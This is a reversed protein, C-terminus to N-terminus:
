QKPWWDMPNQKLLRLQSMRCNSIWRWLSLALPDHGERFHEGWAGLVELHPLFPRLLHSPSLDRSTPSSGPEPPPGWIIVFTRLPSLLHCDTNPPPSLLPHLCLSSPRLQCNQLHLFPWWGLFAATETAPFALFCDRQLSVKLVVCSYVETALYGIGKHHYVVVVLPFESEPVFDTFVSTPLFHHCVQLDQM